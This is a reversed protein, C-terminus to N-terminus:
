RGKGTLRRRLRGQARWALSKAGNESLGMRRGADRLGLGEVCHLWTVRQQKATLCPWVRSLDLRMDAQQFERVGLTETRLDLEVERVHRGRRHVDACGNWASKWVYRTLADPDTEQATEWASAFAQAVVDEAEGRPLARAVIGVM